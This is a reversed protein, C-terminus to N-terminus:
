TILDPVPGVTKCQYLPPPCLSYYISTQSRPLWAVSLVSASAWVVSGIYWSSNFLEQPPQIRWQRGLGANLLEMVTLAVEPNPGGAQPYRLRVPAWRGTMSPILYESVASDNFSAFAFLSLGPSVWLARDTYLIEEEYLWDTVGNYVLGDLGSATLRITDNKSLNPLYYIDNNKVALLAQDGVWTVSQLLAGGLVPSLMPASEGLKIYRYRAEKSYRFLPIQDHSLLLYSLDCSLSFQATNLSRFTTNDQIQALSSTHIDLISLGSEKNIFALKSGSVWTANFPNPSFTGSKIQQYVMRHGSNRPPGPPPTVAKITLAVMGVVVM